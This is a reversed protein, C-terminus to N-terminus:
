TPPQACCSSRRPRRAGSRTLQADASSAGVCCVEGVRLPRMLKLTHGRIRRQDTALHSSVDSVRVEDDSRCAVATELMAREASCERTAPTSPVEAPASPSQLCGPSREARARRRVAKKFLSGCIPGCVHGCARRPKSQEVDRECDPPTVVEEDLEISAHVNVIARLCCPPTKIATVLPRRCQPM